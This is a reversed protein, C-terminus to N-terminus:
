PAASGAFENSNFHESNKLVDFFRNRAEQGFFSEGRPNNDVFYEDLESDQLHMCFHRNDYTNDDNRKMFIFRICKFGPRYWGNAIQRIENLQAFSRPLSRLEDLFPKLELNLRNEWLNVIKNELFVADEATVSTYQVSVAEGDGADHRFFLNFNPEEDVISGCFARNMYTTSINNRFSTSIGEFEQPLPSGIQDMYTCVRFLSDEDIECDVCTSLKGNKDQFRSQKEQFMTLQLDEHGEVKTDDRQNFYVYEDHREAADSIGDLSYDYIFYNDSGAPRRFPHLVGDYGLRAGVSRFNLSYYWDSCSETTVCEINSSTNLQYELPVVGLDEGSLLADRSEKSTYLEPYIKKGIESSIRDSIQTRLERLAPLWAAIKEATEQTIIDSSNGAVYDSVLLQYTLGFLNGLERTVAEVANSVTNAVEDGKASCSEEVSLGNGINAANIGNIVGEELLNSFPSIILADTRSDNVSPLMMEFAKSVTGTSADYAGVPVDAILPRNRWCAYLRDVEDVASQSTYFYDETFSLQQTITTNDFVVASPQKNNISNYFGLELDSGLMEEHIEFTLSLNVWEGSRLQEKTDADLNKFSLVEQYQTNSGKIVKIFFGADVYDEEFNLGGEPIRASLSFNYLGAWDDLIETKNFLKASLIIKDDEQVADQYDSQFLIQRNGLETSSTNNVISSLNNLDNPAPNIKKSSYDPLPNAVLDFYDISIEWPNLSESDLEYEEFQALSIINGPVYDGDPSILGRKVLNNIVESLFFDGNEGTIGFVEGEDFVRNFNQDIYVKAGSVYGDVVKGSLINQPVFASPTPPPTPVPTPTPTPPPTPAPAPSPNSVSSDGSGGGGGGCASVVCVTFIVTLVRLFFKM